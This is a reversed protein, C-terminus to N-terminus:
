RSGKKTQVLLSSELWHAWTHACMCVNALTKVARVCLSHLCMQAHLTCMNKTHELLSSEPWRASSHVSVHAKKIYAAKIVLIKHAIGYKHAHANRRTSLANAKFKPTSSILSIRTYTDFIYYKAM